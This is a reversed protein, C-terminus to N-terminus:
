KMFRIGVVDARRNHADNPDGVAGHSVASLRARDVGNNVLNEVVSEARLQALALNHLSDGEASAFGEVIVTFTPHDNIEGALGHLFVKAEHSLAASDKTFMVSKPILIAAGDDDVSNPATVQLPAAAPVQVKLQEHTVTATETVVRPKVPADFSLSFGMLLVNADRHPLLSTAQQYTNEFAHQYGIWPGMAFTHSQDLFAELGFAVALGPRYLSAQKDVSGTADVWPVVPGGHNGQLRATAGFAWLNAGQTHDAKEEFSVVSISPGVALNPTYLPFLLKASGGIGVRFTAGQPAGAVVAVGPELHLSMTEAFAMPAVTSFALVTLIMTSKKM